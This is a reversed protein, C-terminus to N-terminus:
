DLRKRFRSVALTMMISIFAALAWLEQALEGLGAGRLVIGRILRVFHTLPFIEAIWQAPEPMGEFPFMFGSLLISPLFVFMTMQMAQFQTAVMNSIMLGLSLSATIFLLSAVYLDLMSGRVPVDFLLMGVGLILSVQILGIGIYPLVKATMLELTRVPTTILLELNGRERERVIAVATFLIMTMTLIAGILAPVINVASRREPNYFARLEFTDPPAQRQSGPVPLETLPRIAGLVVPDAGDVLLQGAPRGPQQLRREFDPPIFFGVQIEGRRLLTELEEPTAVRHRVDAVQTQEADQVLDRAMQTNSQDAVAATLHRVDTNIAYGFLIIQMVPIGAIMGITLRDRLLHKGEKRVIAAMRRLAKM